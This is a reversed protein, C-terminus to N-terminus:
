SNTEGWPYQNKLQLWWPYNITASESCHLTRPTNVPRLGTPFMVFPMQGPAPMEPSVLKGHLRRILLLEISLIKYM